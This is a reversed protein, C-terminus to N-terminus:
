STVDNNAATQNASMFGRVLLASVNLKLDENEISKNLRTLWSPQSTKGCYFASIVEFLHRNIKTEDNESESLNNTENSQALVNFISRYRKEKNSKTLPLGTISPSLNAISEILAAEEQTINELIKKTKFKNRKLKELVIKHKTKNTLKYYDNM